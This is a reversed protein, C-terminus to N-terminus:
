SLLGSPVSCVQRDTGAVLSTMLNRVTTLVIESKNALFWQALYCHFKKLSFSMESPEPFYKLTESRDNWANWIWDVSIGRLGRNNIIGSQNWTMGRQGGYEVTPTPVSTLAVKSSTKPAVSRRQPESFSTGDYTLM